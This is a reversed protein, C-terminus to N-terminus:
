RRKSMKLIMKQDPRSCTMLVSGDRTVFRVVRVTKTEVINVPAVGLDSATKRILKLCDAFQMKRVATQASVSSPLTALITATTLTLVKNM